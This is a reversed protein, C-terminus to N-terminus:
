GHRYEKRQPKQTIHRRGDTVAGALRYRCLALMVALPDLRDALAKARAFVNEKLVKM